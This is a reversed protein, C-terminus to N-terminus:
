HTGANLRPGRTCVGCLHGTQRRREDRSLCLLQRGEVVEDAQSADAAVEGVRPRAHGDKHGAVVGPVVKGAGVGGGGERGVGSGQLRHECHVDDVAGERRGVQVVALAELRRGAGLEGDRHMLVVDVDHRGAGFAGDAGNLHGVDGGAARDHVHEVGHEHGVGVDDNGGAWRDLLTDVDILKASTRMQQAQM